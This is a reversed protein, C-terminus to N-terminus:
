EVEDLMSLDFANRYKTTVRQGKTYENEYSIWIWDKTQKELKPKQMECFTIVYKPLIPGINGDDLCIKPGDLIQTLYASFTEQYKRAEQVFATKKMNEEARAIQAAELPGALVVDLADVPVDHDLTYGLRIYYLKGDRIIFGDSKSLNSKENKKIIWIILIVVIAIDFIGTLIGSVNLYASVWFSALVVLCVPILALGFVLNPHMEMFKDSKIEQKLYVKDNMM